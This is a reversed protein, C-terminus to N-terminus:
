RQRERARDSIGAADMFGRDYGRDFADKSGAHYSLGFVLAVLFSAGFVSVLIAITSM